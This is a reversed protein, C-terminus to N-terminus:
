ISGAGVAGAGALGPLSSSSSSICASRRLWVAMVVVM